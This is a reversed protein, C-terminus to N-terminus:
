LFTFNSNKSTLKDHMKNLDKLEEEENIHKQRDIEIKKKKVESTGEDELTKQCTYLPTETTFQTQFKDTQTLINPTPMTPNNKECSPSIEEEKFTFKNKTIEQTM